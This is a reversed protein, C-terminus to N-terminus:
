KREFVTQANLKASLVPLWAKNLVKYSCNHVQNKFEVFSQIWNLIMKFRRTKSKIIRQLFGACAAISWTWRIKSVNSISERNIKGLNLHVYKSMHNLNIFFLVNLNKLIWSKFNWLLFHIRNFISGTIFRIM